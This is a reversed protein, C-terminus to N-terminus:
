YVYIGTVIKIIKGINILKTNIDGKGMEQVMKYIEASNTSINNGIKKIGSESVLSLVTNLLTSFNCNNSLDYVKMLKFGYTLMIDSAKKGAKLEALFANVISLIESKKEVLNASCKYKDSNSMGRVIIVFYDYAKSVDVNTQQLTVGLTLVLLLLGFKNM